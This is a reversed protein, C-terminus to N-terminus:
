YCIFNIIMFIGLNKFLSLIFFSLEFCLPLFMGFLRKFFGFM